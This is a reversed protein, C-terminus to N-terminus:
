WFKSLLLFFKNVLICMKLKTVLFDLIKYTIAVQLDHFLESILETSEVVKLLEVYKDNFFFFWGGASTRSPPGVDVVLNEHLLTILMSVNVLSFATFYCHTHMFPLIHMLYFESHLTSLHSLIAGGVLGFSRLEIWIRWSWCSPLPSSRPWCVTRVELLPWPM